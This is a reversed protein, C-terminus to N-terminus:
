DDHDAHHDAGDVGEAGEIDHPRQGAAPRSTRSFQEAEISVHVGEEVEIEAPPRRRRDDAPEDDEHDAHHEIAEDVANCLGSGIGMTLRESNRGHSGGIPRLASNASASAKMQKANAKGTSHSIRVESRGSDPM